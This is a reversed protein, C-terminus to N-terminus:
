KILIMDSKEIERDRKPLFSIVWLICRSSDTECFVANPRKICGWHPPDATWLCSIYIFFDSTLVIVAGQYGWHMWSSVSVYIAPKNCHASFNSTQSRILQPLHCISFLSGSILFSIKFAWTSYFYRAGDEINSLNFLPQGLCSWSKKRHFPEGSHETATGWRM